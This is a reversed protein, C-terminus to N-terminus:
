CRHSRWVQTVFAALGHDLDHNGPIAYQVGIVNLIEIQLLCIQSHSAGPPFSDPM